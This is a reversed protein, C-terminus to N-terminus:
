KLVESLLVQEPALISNMDIQEAIERALSIMGVRYATVAYIARSSDDQGEWDINEVDMTSWAKKPDGKRLYALALTSRFGVMDPRTDVLAQSEELASDINQNLLLNLYARNNRFGVDDPYRNTIEQAIALSRELDQGALSVLFYQQWTSYDSQGGSSLDLATAYCNLAHETKGLARAHEALGLLVDGRKEERALEIASSWLSQTEATNEDPASLLIRISVKELPSLYETDEDILAKVEDFRGLRMLASIRADFYARGALEDPVEVELAQAPEGVAILWRVLVVVDEDEGFLEVARDITGARNDPDAIILNQLALLKEPLGAKPHGLLRDALGRREESFVNLDSATLLVTLSEVGERQDSEAGQLLSEKGQLRTVLNESQSLILGRLLKAKILSDDLSLCDEVKSLALDTDGNLAAQRAELLLVEAHTPYEAVLVELVPASTEADGVSQYLEVFRIQDALEAGDSEIVRNAFFLAEANDQGSRLEILVRMADLNNDRLQLAARAKGEATTSEGAVMADRAESAWKGSLWGPVISAILLIVAVIVGIILLWSRKKPPRVSTQTNM